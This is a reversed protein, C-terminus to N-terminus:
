DCCLAPIATNCTTVSMELASPAWYAGYSGAQATQLGECDQIQYSGLAIPNGQKVWGQPVSVNLEVSRLVEETSCVHASASGTCASQCAAKALVYGGLAPTTQTTAGCYSTFGVSYSASNLTGVFRIRADLANFNNNLDSATLTDNAAWMKPLSAYAIASLGTLGALPIGLRLAWRKVRHPIAFDIVYVRVKM